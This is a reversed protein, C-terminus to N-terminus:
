TSVLRAESEVTPADPIPAPAAAEVLRRLEETVLAACAARADEEEAEIKDIAERIVRRAHERTIAANVEPVPQGGLLYADGLEEATIRRTYDSVYQAADVPLITAGKLGLARAAAVITEAYIGTADRVARSGAAERGNAGAYIHGCTCQTWDSFVFPQDDLRREARQLAELVSVPATTM